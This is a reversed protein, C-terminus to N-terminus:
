IKLKIIKNAVNKELVENNISKNIPEDVLKEMLKDIDM